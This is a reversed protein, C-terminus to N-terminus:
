LEKITKLIKEIFALREKLVERQEKLAKIDYISRTESTEKVEVKNNEIKNIIQAM